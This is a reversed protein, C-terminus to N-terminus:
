KSQELAPQVRSLPAAQQACQHRLSRQESLSCAAFWDRAFQQVIAIAVAVSRAQGASISLGRM